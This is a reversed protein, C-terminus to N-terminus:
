YKRGSKRAAQDQLYDQDNSLRDEKLEARTMTRANTMPIPASPKYGRPDNPWTVFPVGALSGCFLHIVSRVVVKNEADEYVIMDPDLDISTCPRRLYAIVKYTDGLLSLLETGPEPLPRPISKDRPRGRPKPPRVKLPDYGLKMVIQSLLESNNDKMKPTLSIGNIKGEDFTKIRRSREVFEDLLKREEFDEASVGRTLDTINLKKDASQEDNM